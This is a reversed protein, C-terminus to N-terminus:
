PERAETGIRWTELWVNGAVEVPTHCQTLLEVARCRRRELQKQTGTRRM